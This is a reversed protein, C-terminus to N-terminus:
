QDACAEMLREQAVVGLSRGCGGGWACGGLRQGPGSDAWQQLGVATSVVNSGDAKEHCAVTVVPKRPMRTQRQCPAGTTGVGDSDACTTGAVPRCVRTVQGVDDYSYIARSTSGGRTTTVTDPAGALNRTVDQSVLTTSGSTHAVRTLSSARDYTYASSPGGQRTVSTRNGAVDYSYSVQWSTAGSTLKTGSMRHDDRWTYNQVRGDPLTRRKLQGNKNWGYGFTKGGCVISNVRGATDYGYTATSTGNSATKIQGAGDYTYSLDPTTDSYDVKTTRGTRDYAYTISGAPLTM